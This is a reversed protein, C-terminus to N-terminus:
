YRHGEHRAQIIEEVSMGVPELKKRRRRFRAVAQSYDEHVPVMCAVARGYRTIMVTEGREVKRLLSAFCAKAETISYRVSM